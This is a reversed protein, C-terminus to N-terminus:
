RLDTVIYDDSLAATDFAFGEGQSGKACFEIGAFVFTLQTGSSLEALCGKVAKTKRDTYVTLTSVGAVDDDSCVMRVANVDVGEFVAEGQSAVEFAELASEFSMGSPEVYVERAVRDVSWRSQGDSWFELISTVVSYSPADVVAMGRGLSTEGSRCEFSAKVCNSSLTNSLITAWDSSEARVAVSFVSLLLSLAIYSKRIM